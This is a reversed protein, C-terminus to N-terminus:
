IILYMHIIDLRFGFKIALVTDTKIRMVSVIAYMICVAVRKIIKENLTFM